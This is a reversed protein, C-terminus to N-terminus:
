HLTTGIISVLTGSIVVGLVVRYAMKSLAKRSVLVLLGANQAIGGAAILMAHPFALATVISMVLQALCAAFVWQNVFDDGRLLGVGFYIPIALGLIGGVGRGLVLFVLGPIATLLFFIGVTQEAVESGIDSEGLVPVVKPVSPMSPEIVPRGRRSSHVQGSEDAALDLEIKPNESSNM